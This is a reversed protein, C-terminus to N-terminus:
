QEKEKNGYAPRHCYRDNHRYNRRSTTAHNRENNDESQQKDTQPFPEYIQCDVETVEGDHYIIM